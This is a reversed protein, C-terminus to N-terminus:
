DRKLRSLRGRIPRLTARGQVFLNIM